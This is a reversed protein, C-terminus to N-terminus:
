VDREAGPRQRRASGVVPEGESRTEETCACVFVGLLLLLVRLFYFEPLSLVLLHLLGGEKRECGQCIGKGQSSSSAEVLVLSSVVVVVGGLFCLARVLAGALPPGLLVLFGPLEETQQKTTTTQFPPRFSWCM